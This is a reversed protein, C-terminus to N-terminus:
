PPLTGNLINDVNRPQGVVRETLLDKLKLVMGIEDKVMKGLPIGTWFSKSLQYL